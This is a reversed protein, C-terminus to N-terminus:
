ELSDIRRLDNDLTWRSQPFSPRGMLVHDAHRIAGDISSTKERPLVEAFRAEMVPADVGSHQDRVERSPAHARQRQPAIKM